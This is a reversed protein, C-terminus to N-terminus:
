FQFYIFASPEAGFMITAAVICIYIIHRPIYPTKEFIKSVPNYGGNKYEVTFLLVAAVFATLSHTAAPPITSAGTFSLMRMAYGVANPIDPSRFVMFGFVVCCFTLMSTVWGPVKKKQLMGFPIFLFANYVGWAVFTWNAGHWLGSLLFVLFVNRVKHRYGGGLPIYVYDRFWNMLTIHWRRWFESIGKSFYPTRFNESLEIGFLKASGIAIDSYGSFDCYIEVTFLLAGYALVMSSQSHWNTFVASVTEACNDAIVMKKFFGIVLRQMGEVGQRYRFTRRNQFVPLMRSAREIPGAVLQPFFAIFTAYNVINGTAKTDKRYVDVIYSIAQFTYFSIGAPLVINLTAPNNKIGFHSLIYSFSLIFFDYYKFACLTAVCSVIGALCMAKRHKPNNSNDIYIAAAYTAITMSVIITLLKADWWGYFLYSAALLMCNQAKVHKHMLWYVSFVTPLFLLYAISTFQM